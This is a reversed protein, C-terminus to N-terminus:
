DEKFVGLLKEAKKRYDEAKSLNKSQPFANAFTRYRKITDELRIKKKEQVSNEALLYASKLALFLMDERHESNPYNELFADFAAVSARHNEMKYYQMANEYSKTELKKQLRDMIKNCSDVLNSEPYLDVFFQLDKLAAETETQDLSYLPSNKVSCMASLFFTQETLKSGPFHNAFNKLYYGGMYYDEMMYTSYGLRYYALEGVSTRSFRQYIQEYLAAARDWSGEQFFKDAATQKAAFDDGKVIQNYGGCSSLALTASCVFLFIVHSKKMM